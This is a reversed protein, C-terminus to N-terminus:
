RDGYTKQIIDSSWNHEDKGHDIPYIYNNEKSKPEKPILASFGYHWKMQIYTVGLFKISLLLHIGM